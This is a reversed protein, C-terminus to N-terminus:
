LGHEGAKRQFQSKSFRTRLKTTDSGSERAVLNWFNVDVFM